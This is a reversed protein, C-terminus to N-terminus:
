INSGNLTITGVTVHIDLGQNNTVRAEHTLTTDSEGSTDGSDIKIMCKGNKADSIVVGGGTLSKRMVETGDAQQNAVWKIETALNLDYSNGEEDAITIEPRMDDGAWMTFDQGEEAM